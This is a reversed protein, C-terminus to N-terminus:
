GPCWGVAGLSAVPGGITGTVHQLSNPSPESSPGPVRATLTHTLTGPYAPRNLGILTRLTREIEVLFWAWGQLM